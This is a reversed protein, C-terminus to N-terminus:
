TKVFQYCILSKGNEVLKIRAAFVDGLASSPNVPGILVAGLLGLHLAIESAIIAGMSHGIAIIRKADLGLAAILAVVAGCIAQADSDRGRYKSM